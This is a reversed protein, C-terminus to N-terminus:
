EKFITGDRSIVFIDVDEGIREEYIRDSFTKGVSYIKQVVSNL